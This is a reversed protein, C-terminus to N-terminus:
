SVMRFRACATRHDSIVTFMAAIVSVFCVFRSTSVVRSRIMRSRESFTLLILDAVGTMFRLDLTM